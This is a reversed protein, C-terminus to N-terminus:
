YLTKTNKKCRVFIRWPKVGIIGGGVGTSFGDACTDLPLVDAKSVTHLCTIYM